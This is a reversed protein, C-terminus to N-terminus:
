RRVNQAGFIFERKVLHCIRGGRFAAEGVRLLRADHLVPDQHGGAELAEEEEDVREGEGDDGADVDSQDSSSPHHCFRSILFKEYQLSDSAELQAINPNKYLQNKQDQNTLLDDICFGM